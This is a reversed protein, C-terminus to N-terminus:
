LPILLKMIEANELVSFAFTAKNLGKEYCDTTFLSCKRVIAKRQQLIIYIPLYTGLM